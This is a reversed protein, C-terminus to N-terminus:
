PPTQHSRGDDQMGTFRDSMQTPTVIALEQGGRGFSSINSKPVANM